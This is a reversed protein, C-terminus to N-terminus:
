IGDIDNRELSRAIRDMMEKTWEICIEYV